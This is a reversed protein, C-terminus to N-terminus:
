EADKKKKVVKKIEELEPDPQEVPEQALELGYFKFLAEKKLEYKKPNQKKYAELFAVAGEKDDKAVVKMELKAM